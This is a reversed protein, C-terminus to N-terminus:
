PEAGFGREYVIMRAETSLDHARAAFDLMREVSDGPMKLGAELRELMRLERPDLEGDAVAIGALELLFVRAAVPEGFEQLELESLEEIPEARPFTELGMERALAEQLEAELAHLVEDAHMLAHAARCFLEQQRTTLLHLFM